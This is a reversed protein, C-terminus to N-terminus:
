TVLHNMNPRLRRFVVATFTIDETDGAPFHLGSVIGEIVIDYM